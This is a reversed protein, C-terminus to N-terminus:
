RTQHSVTLEIRESRRSRVNLPVEPPQLLDAPVPWRRHRTPHRHDRPEAAGAHDVADELVGGGLVYAPGRHRDGVRPSVWKCNSASRVEARLEPLRHSKADTAM